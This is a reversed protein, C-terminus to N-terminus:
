TQFSTQESQRHYCQFTPSSFRSPISSVGVSAKNGFEEVLSAVLDDKNIDNIGDDVRKLTGGAVGDRLNAIIAGFLGGDGVELGDVALGMFGIHDLLNGGCVGNGACDAGVDELENSWDNGLTKISTFLASRSGHNSALVGDIGGVLELVKDKGAEGVLGLGLDVVYSAKGVRSNVTDDWSLLWICTEVDLDLGEPLPTDFKRWELADFLGLNRSNV